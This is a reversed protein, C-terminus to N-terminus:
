AIDALAEKFDSAEPEDGCEIEFDYAWIAWWYPLYDYKDPANEAHTRSEISEKIELNTDLLQKLLKEDNMKIGELTKERKLILIKLENLDESTALTRIFGRTNSRRNLYNRHEKNDKAWKEDAEKNYVAKRKKVETM